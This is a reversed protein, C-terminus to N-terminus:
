VNVGGGFFFIMPIMPLIFYEHTDGMLVARVNSLFACLFETVREPVYTIEFTPM